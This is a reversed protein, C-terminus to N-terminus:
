QGTVLRLKAEWLTRIAVYDVKGNANLPVADLALFHSPCAYNPLLQALHRRLALEEVLAPSYLDYALVIAQGVDDDAVGFAAVHRIGIM